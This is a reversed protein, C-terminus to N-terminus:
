FGSEGHKRADDGKADFNAFQRFVHSECGVDLQKVEHAIFYAAVAPVFGSLFCARPSACGADLEFGSQHHEVARQPWRRM